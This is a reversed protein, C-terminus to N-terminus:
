QDMLSLDYSLLRPGSAFYIRGDSITVGATITVGPRVVERHEFTGPEIRAIAERFLAYIAGDPGLTMVRPAQSGTGAGYDTLQEDHVFEGSGTDFVFFRNDTTLGYLMGDEPVILDRVAATAPEFSWQETMQKTEWDIRYLMAQTATAAGGTSARTTTGVIVDGNPLAAMSLPGQDAILDDRELIIEEGTETDYILICGGTLVRAAMGGMLVHRGDPHALMTHPRGYRDVAEDYGHVQRPNESRRIFVDDYPQAPDWEILSGSSYVAGYLLDGQRVWQNVHGGHGGLGRDQLEGTAPDLDFIRLPVGTAGYIKGDAGEVLTYIRVGTSEYDFRVDRPEEADADLVRLLRDEPRLLAISSGDEWERVAMSVAGPPAEVPTAQGASLRHWSWGPATGYVEGAVGLRVSGQGRTRESQDMFRVVDGTATNLGVVQSLTQGIGSYVWGHRDAALPRPYQPWNEENVPGHQTYEEASPDWTVIRATPYIGGYVVGDEDRTFVLAMQGEFEGLRRIERTAADIEVMWRGLTDYIKNTEPVYHTSFAGWGGIDPWVQETEGTEADIFLYSADNGTWLKIFAVRNGDADVVAHTSDGWTARGVPAAIGHDQVGEPLEQAETVGSAVTLLGIMVALACYAPLANFM